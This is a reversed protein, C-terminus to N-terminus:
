RGLRLQALALVTYMSAAELSQAGHAAMRITLGDRAHREAADYDDPRARQVYVTSLVELADAHLPADGFGSSTSKLLAVGLPVADDYRGGLLLRRANLRNGAPVHIATPPPM